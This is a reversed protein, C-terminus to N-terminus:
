PEPPHPDPGTERLSQLAAHDIDGPLEGPHNYYLDWFADAALWGRGPLFVRRGDLDVAFSDPEPMVMAPAAEQGGADPAAVAVEPEAAPQMAPDPVERIGAPGSDAADSCAQLAALLVCCVLFSKHQMM